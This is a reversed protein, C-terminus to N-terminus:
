VKKEQKVNRSKMARQQIMISYKEFCLKSCLNIKENPKDIKIGKDFIVNDCMHCAVDTESIKALTTTM